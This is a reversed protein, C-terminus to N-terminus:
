GPSVYTRGGGTGKALVDICITVWTIIRQQLGQSIMNTVSGKDDTTGVEEDFCDQAVYSLLSM